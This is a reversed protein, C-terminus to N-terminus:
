TRAAPTTKTPSRRDRCCDPVERALSRALGILGAKAAAYSSLGAPGYLGAVSGVLVIRGYRRRRMSRAAARACLAAGILTTDIVRRFEDIDATVLPTLHGIGANAVLVDIPGHDAEITAFAADVSAEDAVDCPVAPRHTIPTQHWTPVVLHGERALAEVCARGLPSAGATVVAIGRQHGEPVM